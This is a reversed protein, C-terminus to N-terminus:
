TLGWSHTTLWHPMGSEWLVVLRSGSRGPSGWGEGGWGPERCCGMDLLHTGVWKCSGAGVPRLCQWPVGWWGSRCLQLLRSSCCSMGVLMGQAAATIAACAGM